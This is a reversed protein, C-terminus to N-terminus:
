LVQDPNASPNPDTNMVPIPTFDVKPFANKFSKVTILPNLLQDLNTLHDPSPDM